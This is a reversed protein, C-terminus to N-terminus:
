HRGLRVGLFVGPWAYYRDRYVSGQYEGVPTVLVHNWDKSFLLNGSIGGYVGLYRSLRRGYELRLQTLTNGKNTKFPFELGFSLGDDEAFLEKWDSRNKFLFIWDYNLGIWSSGRMAFETGFGAGLAKVAGSPTRGVNLNTHMWPTGTQLSVFALGLENEVLNMACFGNGVSNFLGFVPGDAHGIQNILGFVPGRTRGAVNWTGVMSGDVKGAINWVGIQNQGVRG